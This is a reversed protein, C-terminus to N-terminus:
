KFHFYFMVFFGLLLSVFIDCCSSFWFLTLCKREGTQEQGLAAISGCFVNRCESHQLFCCEYFHKLFSSLSHISITDRNWPPLLISKRCSEAQVCIWKSLIQIILDCVGGETRMRKLTHPPKKGPWLAWICTQLKWFASVRCMHFGKLRFIGVSTLCICYSHAGSTVAFWHLLSPQARSRLVLIAVAGLRASRTWSSFQLDSCMSSM